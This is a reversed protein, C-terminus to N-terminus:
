QVAEISEVDMEFVSQVKGADKRVKVHLVGKVRVLGSAYELKKGEMARSNVFHQVQPPGQFCCKAISYCLQYSSVYQGAGNAAWMEGEMVVKKGDLERWKAPIDNITGETQDFLFGSMAKLEVHTYGGGANSIGGTAAEHVFQYVPYGIMTGVVAFFVILRLNIRQTLPVKALTAEM